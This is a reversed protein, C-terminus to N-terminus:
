RQNTFGWIPTHWLAPWWRWNLPWRGCSAQSIQGESWAQNERPNLLPCYRGYSAQSIQGESWAQNERPNLLPCYRGCSAQSIQGESWAQNERPNLLPCDLLLHASTQTLTPVCQLILMSCDEWTPLSIVTVLRYVTSLQLTGRNFIFPMLRLNIAVM